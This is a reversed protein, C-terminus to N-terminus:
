PLQLPSVRVLGPGQDRRRGTPYESWAIWAHTPTAALEPDRANATPPSVTVAHEAVHEVGRRTAGVHVSATRDDGEMWAVIVADGRVAIAPAFASAAGTALPQPAPPQPTTLPNWAVHQLVYPSQPTARQAWVAIVDDGRFAMAPAGLDGAYLPPVTGADGMAETVTVLRMGRASRYAVVAREGKIAVAVDTPRLPRAERCRDPPAGEDFPTMYSPQGEEPYLNTEACPVADVPRLRLDRGVTRVVWVAFGNRSQYRMGASERSDSECIAGFCDLSDGTTAAIWHTGDSAAVLSDVALLQQTSRADDLVFSQARTFDQATTATRRVGFMLTHLAGDIVVPAGVVRANRAGVDLTVPAALAGSPDVDVALTAHATPSTVVEAVLRARDGAAAIQLQDVRGHMTTVDVGGAVTLACPGEPPAAAVSPGRPASADGVPEPSVRPRPPDGRRGCGLSLGLLCLASRSALHPSM